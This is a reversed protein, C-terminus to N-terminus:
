RRRLFRAILDRVIEAAPKGADKAVSMLKDRMASEMPTRFLTTYRRGPPRGGKSKTDM